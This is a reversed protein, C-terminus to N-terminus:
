GPSPNGALEKRGVGLVVEGTGWRREEGVLGRGLRVAELRVVACASLDM